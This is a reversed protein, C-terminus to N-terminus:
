HDEDFFEKLLDPNDNDLNVRISTLESLEAINLLSSDKKYTERDYLLFSGRKFRKYNLQNVSLDSNTLVDYTICDVDYYPFAKELEEHLTIFNFDGLNSQKDYVYVLSVTKNPFLENTELFDGYIFIKVLNYKEAIPAIRKRFLKLNNMINYDKDIM